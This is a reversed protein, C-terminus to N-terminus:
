MKQIRIPLNDVSFNYFTKTVIAVFQRFLLKKNKYPIPLHRPQLFNVYFVNVRAQLLLQGTAEIETNETEHKQNSYM